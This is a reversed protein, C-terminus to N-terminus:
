LSYFGSPYFAGFAEGCGLFSWFSEIHTISIDTKKVCEKEEM